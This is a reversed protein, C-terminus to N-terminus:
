KWRRWRGLGCRWCANCQWWSWWWFRRWRRGLRRHSMGQAARVAVLKTRSFSLTSITMTTGANVYIAGGGGTGGGGGTKGPGGAGGESLGNQIIFDSITAAGQALSFVPVTGGGDITVGSGLITFSPGLAPLRASLNITQGAIPSCDIIDGAQAQQLAASLSGDGIGGYNGNTNTVLITDALLPKSLLLNVIALACALRVM